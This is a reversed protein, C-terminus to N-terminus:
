ENEEENEEPLTIGINSALEYLDIGHYKWDLQAKNFIDYSDIDKLEYYSDFLEYVSNMPDCDQWYDCSQLVIVNQKPLYSGAEQAARELLYDPALQGKKPKIAKVLERKLTAIDYVKYDVSM